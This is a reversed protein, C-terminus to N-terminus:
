FFKGLFGWFAMFYRLYVFDWGFITLFVYSAMLILSVLSTLRITDIERDVVETVMM